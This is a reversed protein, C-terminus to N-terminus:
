TIRLNYLEVYYIIESNGLSELNHEFGLTDSNGDQWECASHSRRGVPICGSAPVINWRNTTTDLAYMESGYEEHEPSDYWGSPVERGGWVFMVGDIGTATHFDRYIPSPGQM